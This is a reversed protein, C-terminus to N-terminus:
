AAARGGGPAGPLGDFATIGGRLFDEDELGQARAAMYNEQYSKPTVQYHEKFAKNFSSVNPFGNDLAIRAITKDTGELERVAFDLRIDTLYEGLNKGLKKKIYRSIYAPSLYMREALDNLSIQHKFNGHIYSIIDNIRQADAGDGGPLIEPEYEAFHSVLQEVIQYYISNLRVLSRGDGSQRGQYHSICRELLRRFDNYQEPAGVTSNCSIGMRHVDYYRALMEMSIIFRAILVHGEGRYSHHRCSDVLIFDKAKLKSAVGSVVFSVEGELVFYILYNTDFYDQVSKQAILDFDMIQNEPLMLRNM